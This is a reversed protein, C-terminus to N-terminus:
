EFFSKSLSMSNLSDPADKTLSKYTPLKALHLRHYEERISDIQKYIDCMDNKISESFDISFFSHSLLESAKPRKEPNLDLCHLILDRLEASIFSPINDYILHVNNIMFEVYQYETTLNPPYSLFWINKGLLMELITMGVSWIDPAHSRKFNIEGKLQEICLFPITGTLAGKTKSLTLSGSQKSKDLHSKKCILKSEGFDCLKILEANKLLINDCKLDRHFIPEDREEHLYKLASLIQKLYLQIVGETLGRGMRKLIQKVSGGSLFEMMIYVWESSFEVGKFQVINEHRLTKMISTEREIKQKINTEPSYLIKKVAIMENHISDYVLIVKGFSGLGLSKMVIWGKSLEFSEGFPSLPTDAPSESTNPPKRTPSDPKTVIQVRVKAGKLDKITDVDLWQKYERDFYMLLIKEKRNIGFKDKIKRSIAHLTTISSTGAVFEVKKKRGQYEAIFSSIPPNIVPTQTATRSTKPEELGMQKSSPKSPDSVKSKRSSTLRETPPKTPPKSTGATSPSSSPIVFSISKRKLFTHTANPISPTNTVPNSSLSNTSGTKSSNTVTKKNVKRINDNEEGSGTDGIKTQKKEKVIVNQKTSITTNVSPKTKKIVPKEIVAYQSVYHEPKTFTSSPLFPPRTSNSSSPKKKAIYSESSRRPYLKKLAHEAHKSDATSSNLSPPSSPHKPASSASRISSISSSSSNLNSLTEDCDTYETLVEVMDLYQAVEADDYEDSYADLEERETQSISHVSHQVDLQLSSANVPIKLPPIIVEEDEFSQNIVSPHSQSSIIHEQQFPLPNSFLSPNVYFPMPSATTSSNASDSSCNYADEKLVLFFQSPASYITEEHPEHNLAFNSTLCDDLHNETREHQLHNSTDPNCEEISMKRIESTAAEQSAVLSHEDAGSDHIFHDTDKSIDSSM